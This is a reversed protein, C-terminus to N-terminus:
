EERVIRFGVLVYRTAPTNWNRFSARAYLPWTHWSGGRRVKLRGTEPGPPDDVPSKGYYDEGYWDSCWEWVGGHMDHLGFANPAFKGVPSTFRYGDKGPLAFEKWQPFVAATEQDYTNAIKLLAEPADGAFYRTRTGARCAYEWEAETPLRYKKGETKSLWECFKVADHWSINVVAHSDEQEFGPNLWSYKPDRGVFEKKEADFGWGGTGDAISDPQNGSLELYKRFQGRTVETQGFLFSKTIRVKHVPAEDEFQFRRKEYQSYTKALTEPTEDSGMFFEGAPIKVLKMSLSNEVVQPTAEEACVLQAAFLLCIGMALPAFFQIV